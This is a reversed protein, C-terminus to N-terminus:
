NNGAFGAAYQRPYGRKFQDTAVTIHCQLQEDTRIPAAPQGNGMIVSLTFQDQIPGAHNLPEVDILALDPTPWKGLTQMMQPNEDVIAAYLNKDVISVRYEGRAHERSGLLRVDVEVATCGNVHSLQLVRDAVAKDHSSEPYQTQRCPSSRLSSM